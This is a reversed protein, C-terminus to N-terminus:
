GAAVFHLGYGGARPTSAAQQDESTGAAFFPKDGKLTVRFGSRVKPYYDWLAHHQVCRNDWFAVSNNEWQFRCHFEPTRIHEFLFELLAKGETRNLEMIQRTFGSNVYLGKRRTVPHTRVVPHISEPYAGDRLQEDKGYRGRYQHESAHRATLGELFGKMSESLADYAAYMSSFMTDGGSEPTEHLHLISGMPPEEDCSVDSHWGHGAIRKSNEDAHIILIEPHGEPGPSAPHIHLEGFNRGFAKHQDLDMAQDRFFVVQHTMLAEHIEQVEAQGLPQTLDVGGIEAGIVPTLPRVSIKDYAM